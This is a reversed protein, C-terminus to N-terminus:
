CFSGRRSDSGRSVRRAKSHPPAPALMQALPSRGPCEAPCQARQVWPSHYPGSTGPCACLRVGLHQGKPISAGRSVTGRPHVGGRISDRPSPRGGGTATGRSHIDSGDEVSQPEGPRSSEDGRVHSPERSATIGPAWKLTRPKPEQVGQRAMGQGSAARMMSNSQSTSRKRRSGQPWRKGRGPTTRVVPRSRM